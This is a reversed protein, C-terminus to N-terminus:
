PTGAPTAATEITLVQPPTSDPPYLFQVQVRRQDGPPMTLQVLPEGQQGRRQVLHVYQVRSRGEDDPYLFMVTGRFFIRSDPPDQFQLADELGENQLPTQISLTVTQEQNTSNRLPLQLDYEIGYNGHARYATDPYRALMPASQIQETGFTNRDVTSLVYSIRSGPAPIHLHPQDDDTLAASWRSGQAVGSVRGYLFPNASDAEDPPTPARDRPGALDGQRLLEQWEALSPVQEGGEPTTPAYMALSAVHVPASSSLRMLTSRANIRPDDGTAKTQDPPPLLASGAPLTGDTPVSLQRLPIPVNMLLYDEGPAVEFRTPWQTQRRDRLIENMLRSGPGSFSTGLLNSEAAELEHWPAEQALFSGAERLDVVVMEDGPNHVIVGLYLTRTDGPTVSRAVHHAFLDFRGQFAHDLHAEPNAMGEAPFTSLLIGENQVLEPSNSNFVPVQDLSGPLVRVEQPQEIVTGAQAVLAASTEVPLVDPTTLVLSLLSFM